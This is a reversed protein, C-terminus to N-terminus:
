RPARAADSGKASAARRCNKLLAGLVARLQRARHFFGALDRGTGEFAMSTDIERVTFGSDLARMTMDVEVAYGSAFSGLADVVERSLARQGSLPARLARGGHWALGLRAVARVIGFGGPRDSPRMRAICLDADGRAVAGILLATEHASEGVDADLLLLIDYPDRALLALGANLAGGKGRGEPLLLVEAGARRAAEATRDCSGDDVVVVRKVAPVSTVAHVTQGVCAEEDRAPILAVVRISGIIRSSREGCRAHSHEM